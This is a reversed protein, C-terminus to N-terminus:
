QVVTISYSQSSQQTTVTRKGGAHQSPSKLQSQVTFTFTGIKGPRGSIMAGSVRLGPPLGRATSRVKAGSTVGPLSLKLKVPQKLKVIGLDIVAGSTPSAAPEGSATSPPEPAASPPQAPAITATFSYRVFVVPTSPVDNSWIWHAASDGPFASVNQYWPAVGFTGYDAALAWASDDFDASEWGSFETASVKWSTDSGLRQANEQIEALMAAPGGFNTCKVAVVNKGDRLSVSYSQSQTWEAFSGQLAGNFYLDYANDCAIVIKAATDISNSAVVRVNDIFATDDGGASNLGVFTLTHSGQGPAVAATALEQYTADPPAFTGLLTSDLYVQFDQPGGYNGRRAAAFRVTYSVGAQFGDIRQSIAGQGQLFAVQAGEPAAPNGYTFGSGNASIGSQNNFTWASGTPFYQFSFYQYAAGVQPTEFGGQQVTVGNSVGTNVTVTVSSNASGGNGDLVIATATFAGGASYVHTAIAGSGSTGDGFDWAYSLSDGDPDSAAISFTVAQGIDAPNPAASSASTIVPGGNNVVLVLIASGTGFANSASITIYFTGPTTPTGSILGTATNMSLGQPLGAAGFSTPNNTASIAYAFASGGTVSASSASTVLPAVDGALSAIEAVSLARNYIHLEDLLGNFYAGSGLHTSDTGGLAYYLTGPWQKTGFVSSGAQVGNLFGDLKQAAANYTLAVHSWQGFTVKGVRLGPLQWVRAYLSGDSLVEIQSDHWNSNLASQGLEDVVVGAANANIWLAITVSGGSFQSALNNSTIAYQGAGNLSLANNVRGGTWSGGNLSGTNGNGSSDSATAGSSEDLKWYLVLGNTITLTLTSSGTGASNTASIAVPFTGIATPTGSIVGTSSNVSLGAPLGAAGYSTPSNTATIAYSFPTNVTGGASSSSTIVPATVSQGVNITISNSAIGNAVVSLAYSGSPIGTASFNASVSANGTAVGM